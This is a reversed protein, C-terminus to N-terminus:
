HVDKRLRQLVDRIRRDVAQANELRLVRAVQELTLDQEYRMRLLLQDEPTLQAVARRLREGEEEAAAQSEPDPAGDPLLDAPREEEESEAGASGREHLFRGRRVSLLWRQRPTLAAAIREVSETMQKRTWGPFRASLLLFAEDESAGQEYVLRYADQDMPPLATISDFTWERGMQQRHWDLCLNRVVARLWTTFRAPGDVRFRRLRRFRDRCLQQCVFLYCDSVHDADREFHRIVQLILDSYESLFDAWAEPADASALRSLFICTSEEPM